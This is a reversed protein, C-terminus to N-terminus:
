ALYPWLVVVAGFGIALMLIGAIVVPWRSPPADGAARPEELEHPEHMVPM